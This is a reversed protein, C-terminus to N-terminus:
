KIAQRLQRIRETYEASVAPVKKGLLLAIVAQIFQGLQGAPSDPEQEVPLKEIAERFLPLLVPVRKNRWADIALEVVHDAEGAIRRREEALVVAAQEAPSMSLFNVVGQRLQEREAPAMDALKDELAALAEPTLNMALAAGTQDVEPEVYTVEHPPLGDRLRKVQALAAEDKALDPLGLQQDIAVAAELAVVAEDFQQLETLYLAQNFYAVALTQRIEDDAELQTLWDIALDQLIVSVQPWSQLAFFQALDLALRLRVSLDLQSEFLNIATTALTEYAAPSPKVVVEALAQLYQQFDVPLDPRRALQQIADGVVEVPHEDEVLGIAAETAVILVDSPSLQETV